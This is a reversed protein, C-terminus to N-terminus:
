SLLDDEDQAGAIGTDEVAVNLEIVEGTLSLRSATTCPAFRFTYMWIIYRNTLELPDARYLRM